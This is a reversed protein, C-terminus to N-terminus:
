KQVAQKRRKALRRIVSQPEANSLQVQGRNLVLRALKMANREGTDVSVQDMLELPGSDDIRAGKTGRPRGRRHDRAKFRRQNLLGLYYCMLAADLYAKRQEPPAFLADRLFVLADECRIYSENETAAARGKIPGAIRVTARKTM